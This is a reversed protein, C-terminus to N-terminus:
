AGSRHHRLSRGCSRGRHLEDLQDRSRLVGHRSTEHHGGAPQKLGVRFAFAVFVFWVIFPASIKVLARRIPSNKTFSLIVKYIISTGIVAAGIPLAHFAAPTDALKGIDAFDFMTKQRKPEKIAPLAADRQNQAAREVFPRADVLRGTVRERRVDPVVRFVSDFQEDAHASKLHRTAGERHGFLFLPTRGNCMQCEFGTAHQGRERPVLLDRLADGLNNHQMLSRKAQAHALLLAKLAAQARLPGNFSAYACIRVHERVAKQTGAVAKGTGPCYIGFATAALCYTDM